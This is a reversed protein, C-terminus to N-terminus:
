FWHPSRRFSPRQIYLFAAFPGDREGFVLISLLFFGMLTENMAALWMIAEQHSQVSAFFVAAIMGTGASDSHQRVLKWVLISNVIHLLLNFGYHWVAHYGFLFRLMGFCLYSTFRFCEPPESFLNLPDHRLTDLRGLIVYTM